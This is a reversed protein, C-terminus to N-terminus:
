QCDGPYLGATARKAKTGDKLVAEIYLYSQSLDTLFAIRLWDISALDMESKLFLSAEESLKAKEFWDSVFFNIESEQEKGTFTGDVTYFDPMEGVIMETTPMFTAEFPMDFDIPKSEAAFQETKEDFACNMSFDQAPKDAAYIETQTTISLSFGFCMLTTTVKSLKM